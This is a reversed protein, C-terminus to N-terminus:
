KPLWSLLLSLIIQVLFSFHFPTSEGKQAKSCSLPTATASMELSPRGGGSRASIMAGIRSKWVHEVRVRDQGEGEGGGSDAVANNGSEDASGRKLPVVHDIVYGPVRRFDQRNV